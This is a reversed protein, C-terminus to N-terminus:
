PSYITVHQTSNHTVSAFFWFPEGETPTVELRVHTAGASLAQVDAIAGYATWRAFPVPRFPADLPLQREWLMTEGEWARVTVSSPRGSTGYVRLMVRFDGTVPVHMISTVHHLFNRERVVPIETGANSSARSLDRVHQSFRVHDARDRGVYFLTGEHGQVPGWAEVTLPSLTTKPPLASPFCGPVRCEESAIFLVATPADNRTWLETVWRSGNAGPAPQNEHYPNLPVLVAEYDARDTQARLPMAVLLSLLLFRLM